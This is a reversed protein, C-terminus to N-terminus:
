YSFIALPEGVRFRNDIVTAARRLLLEEPRSGRRMM